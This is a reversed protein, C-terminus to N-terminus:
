NSGYIGALAPIYHISNLEKFVYIKQFCLFNLYGFFLVFGAFGAVEDARMDSDFGAFGTLRTRAYAGSAVSARAPPLAALPPSHRSQM